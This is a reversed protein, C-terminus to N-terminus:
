QDTPKSKFLENLKLMRKIKDRKRTPAPPATGYKWRMQAPTLKDLEDLEEDMKGM